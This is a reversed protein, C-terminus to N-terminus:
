RGPGGEGHGEIAGEAFSGVGRAFPGDPVDLYTTKGSKAHVIWGDKVGKEVLEDSQNRTITDLPAPLHARRGFVSDQGRSGLKFPFGAEAEQAIIDVLTALMEGKPTRVARLRDTADVLLGTTRDRLYTRVMRDTPGNAKVVAGQYLRNAEYPEGIDRCSARQVNEPPAWFAYALRVGDVLATSGRIAHRAAQASTIPRTADGKAMHHPIIVAAGTETALAALQGMVYAGAAPDANIDAHVFAALPDIVVLRLDELSLLWDRMMAFRDTVQLGDRAQVFFPQVGGANPFPVLALRDDALGRRDMQPCLAHFRRHLEAEDDEASLIVAKGFAVIRNGFAMPPIVKSEDGPTGTAIKVALDLLLMGKGTDGAAALLAPKGLEVVDAILWHRPAPEGTFARGTFWDSPDFRPAGTHVPNSELAQMILARRESQDADASDWKPPKDPPVALIRLSAVGADACARGAVSAFSSGAADHDPWIVVHRGCLPTFDTRAVAQAGGMICTAVFDLGAGPGGMRVETVADACKEGEVLVVPVGPATSLGRLDYLPRVGEPAVWQRRRPCWPRIEKLGPITPHDFRYVKAVTEGQADHYAWIKTPPKRRWWLPDDPDSPKPKDSLVPAPVLGREGGANKAIDQSRAVQEYGGGTNAVLRHGAPLIGLWEAAEDRAEHQELGHVAAWLAILDSGGAGGSFDKWVGTNVNISLSRGRAGSLDGVVYEPGQRRGGPLLMKCVDLARPLLRANVTKFDPAERYAGAPFTEAQAAPATSFDLAM